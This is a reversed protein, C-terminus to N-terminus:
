KENNDLGVIKKIRAFYTMEDFYVIQKIYREYNKSVTKSNSNDIFKLFLDEISDKDLCHIIFPNRKFSILHINSRYQVWDSERHQISDYGVALTPIKNFSADIMMSSYPTILGKIIKFLFPNVQFDNKEFNYIKINKLKKLDINEENKRVWAYPHPKYIIKINLNYKEIINNLIKMLEKEAFPVGCGAFLYYNIDKSINNQISFNDLDLQKFNKNLYIEHRLSGINLTNIKHIKKALRCTQKGWTVLFTPKCLLPKTIASDWNLFILYSKINKKNAAYVLDDLLLDQSTGFLILKSKEQLKISKPISIKLLLDLFIIVLFHLKLFRITKITKKAFFGVGLFPYEKLKKVRISHEYNKLHFLFYWIFYRIFNIKFIQFQKIKLKPAFSNFLWTTNNEELEEILNSETLDRHGLKKSPAYIYLNNM